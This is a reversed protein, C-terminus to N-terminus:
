SVVLLILLLVQESEATYPFLYTVNIVHFCYTLLCLSQFLQQNRRRHRTAAARGSSIRNDCLFFKRSWLWVVFHVLRPIQVSSFAPVKSLSFM